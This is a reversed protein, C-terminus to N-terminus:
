LKNDRNKNIKISLYFGILIFSIFLILLFDTSDINM